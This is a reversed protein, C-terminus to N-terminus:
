DNNNFVNLVELNVLLIHLILHLHQYRLSFKHFNLTNKLHWIHLKCFLQNKTIMQYIDGECCLNNTHQEVARPRDNEFKFQQESFQNSRFLAIEVWLWNPQSVKFNLHSISTSPRLSLFFFISLFMSFWKKKFWSLVILFPVGKFQFQTCNHQIESSWCIPHSFSCVDYYYM